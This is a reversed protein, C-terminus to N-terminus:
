EDVTMMPAVGNKLAPGIIVLGQQTAAISNPINEPMGVTDILQDQEDFRWGWIIRVEHGPARQQFRKLVVEEANVNGDEPQVFAEYDLLEFGPPLLGKEHLLAERKKRITIADDFYEAANNLFSFDDGGDEGM